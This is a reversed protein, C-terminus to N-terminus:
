TTQLTPLDYRTSARLIRANASLVQSRLPLTRRVKPQSVMENLEVSLGRDLTDQALDAWPTGPHKAIVDELLRRAEAYKKATLHKPAIPKRSHDVVFTITLEATPLKGLRRPDRGLEGMLARYEIAKVQFAVTQALMLDYHAQWRKEPEHDRFNKLNELYKQIEKLRNLKPTTRQEEAAAAQVLEAKDTPFARRYILVRSENIVEFLSRRLESSTRNQLYVLRNAYEPMYERLQVISYAQERQRFRM